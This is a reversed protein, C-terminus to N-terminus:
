PIHWLPWKKFHLSSWKTINSSYFVVSFKAEVNYELIKLMQVGDMKKKWIM